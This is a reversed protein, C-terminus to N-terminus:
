KRKQEKLRRARIQAVAVEIRQISTLRPSVDTNMWRSIQPVEIGSERSLEGYSIGYKALRKKLQAFYDAGIEITIKQM